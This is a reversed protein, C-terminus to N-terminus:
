FFGFLFNVGSLSGEDKGIRSIGIISIYVTRVLPSFCWSVINRFFFPFSIWFLYLLTKCWGGETKVLWFVLTAIFSSPGSLPNLVSHKEHMVAAVTQFYKGQSINWILKYLIIFIYESHILKIWELAIYCCLAEWIM